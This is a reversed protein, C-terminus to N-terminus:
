IGVLLISHGLALCPRRAAMRGAKQGTGGAKDERQRELGLSLCLSASLHGNCQRPQLLLKVRYTLHHGSSTSLSIGTWFSSYSYPASLLSMMGGSM